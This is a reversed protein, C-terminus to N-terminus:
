LVEVIDEERVFQFFSESSAKILGKYREVTVETGVKFFHKVDTDFSNDTIIMHTM